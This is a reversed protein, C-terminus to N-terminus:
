VRAGGVFGDFLPAIRVVDGTHPAHIMMGGGLYLGIHTIPHYFFVLDGPRLESRSVPRGYGAQMRSSHPLGVGAAAWAGMTLGSCDWAGPGAAGWRYPEGLQACAFRIARAAREDVGGLAFSGCGVSGGQGDGDVRTASARRRDHASPRHAARPAPPAQVREAARSARELQRRQEEALSDLLAQAERLKREVDAKARSQGDALEVLRARRSTAQALSDRLQAEQVSLHALLGQKQDALSVVLGSQAILAEPDRGLAVAVTSLSGRRYAEVGLRGLLRRTNAIASRQLAIRDQLATLLVQQSRVQEGLENYKETAVEVQHRLDEVLRQVEALSRGPAATTSAQPTLSALLGVAVCVAARRRGPRRRRAAVPARGTTRTRVRTRPPVPTRGTSRASLSM